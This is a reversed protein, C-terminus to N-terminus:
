MVYFYVIAYVLVNLYLVDKFCVSTMKAVFTEDVRRSM